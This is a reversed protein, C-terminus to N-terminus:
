PREPETQVLSGCRPMAMARRTRVPVWLTLKKMIAIVPGNPPKLSEPSPRSSPRFPEARVELQSRDAQRRPDLRLGAMFSLALDREDGARSRSSPRSIASAKARSPHATPMLSMRRSAASATTLSIRLSRRRPPRRQRAVDGVAAGHVLHEGGVHARELVEVDEHVVGADREHLIVDLRVALLHQGSTMVVPRLVMDSSAVLVISSPWQRRM